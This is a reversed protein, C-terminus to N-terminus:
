AAKEFYLSKVLQYAKEIQKEIWKDRKEPFISKMLYNELYKRRERYSKNLMVNLLDKADQDGEEFKDRVKQRANKVAQEVAGTSIKVGKKTLIGAIERYNREDVEKKVTEKGTIGPSLSPKKEHYPSEEGFVGKGTTWEDVRHRLKLVAGELPSVLKGLLDHFREMKEKEFYTQEPGKYPSHINEILDVAGSDKLSQMMTRVRKNRSIEIMKSLDHKPKGYQKIYEDKIQSMTPNKDLNQRLMDSIQKINVIALKTEPDLAHFQNKEIKLAENISGEIYRNGEVSNLYTLLNGKEPKWNQLAEFMGVMGSDAIEQFTMDAKPNLGRSEMGVIIKQAKKALLKRYPNDKDKWDGLLDSIKNQFDLDDKADFKEYTKEYKKLKNEIEKKEKVEKESEQQIKGKKIRGKSKREVNEANVKKAITKQPTRLDTATGMKTYEIDYHTSSKKAQTKGTKGLSHSEIVKGEYEKGQHKFKVTTGKRIKPVPIVAKITKSKGSLEGRRALKEKLHTERIKSRYEQYEKEVGLYMRINANKKEEASPHWQPHSFDAKINGKIGKLKDLQYNPNGGKKRINQRKRDLHKQVQGYGPLIGSKDFDEKSKYSKGNAQIYIADPNIRLHDPHNQNILVHGKEPGKPFDKNYSDKNLYKKYGGEVKVQYYIPSKISLKSPNKDIIYGIGTGTKPAPKDSEKRKGKKGEFKVWKGDRGKKVRQWKNKGTKQHTGTKRHRIEGINAAAAKILAIINM